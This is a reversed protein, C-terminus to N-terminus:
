LVLDTISASRGYEKYLKVLEHVDDTTKKTVPLYVDIISEIFDKKEKNAEDSISGKLFEISVFEVTTILVRQNKCQNFFERFVPLRIYAEIFINTDLLLYKNNVNSLFEPPLIIKM